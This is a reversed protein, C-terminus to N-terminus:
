KTTPLKTILKLMLKQIELADKNSVGDGPLYCDANASGQPTIHSKDTGTESYKSPNSLSQM